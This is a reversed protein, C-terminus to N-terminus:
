SVNEMMTASSVRIFAPGVKLMANPPTTTRTPKPAGIIPHIKDTLAVMEYNITDGFVMRALEKESRSLPRM